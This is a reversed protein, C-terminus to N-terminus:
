SASFTAQWRSESLNQGQFCLSSSIKPLSFVSHWSFVVKERFAASFRPPPPTPHVWGCWCMGFTDPGAVLHQWATGLVSCWNFHSIYFTAKLLDMQKGYSEPKLETTDSLIVQCMNEEWKGRRCSMEPKKGELQSRWQHMQTGLVLAPLQRLM